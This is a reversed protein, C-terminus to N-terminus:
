KKVEEGWRKGQWIMGGGDGEKGGVGEFGHRNKKRKKKKKEDVLLRRRTDGGTKKGGKKKMLSLKEGGRELGPWL